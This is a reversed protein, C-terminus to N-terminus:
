YTMIVMASDARWDIFTRLEGWPFSYDNTTSPGGGLCTALWLANDRDEAIPSIRGGDFLTLIVTTVVGEFFYIGPNFCRGNLDVAPLSYSRYSGNLVAPRSWGEAAALFDAEALGPGVIVGNGLDVVGDEFM